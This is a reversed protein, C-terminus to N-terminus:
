ARRMPVVNNVLEFLEKRSRGSGYVETLCVKCVWSGRGLPRVRVINDASGCCVWDNREVM